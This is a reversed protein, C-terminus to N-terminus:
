SLGDWQEPDHPLYTVVAFDCLVVVAGPHKRASRIARRAWSWYRVCSAWHSGNSWSHMAHTTASPCPDAGKVALKRGVIPADQTDRADIIRFM